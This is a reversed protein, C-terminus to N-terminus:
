NEREVTDFLNEQEAEFLRMAINCRTCIVDAEVALIVSNTCEPCRYLKKKKKPKVEPTQARELKAATSESNDASM